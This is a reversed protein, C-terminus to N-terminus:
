SKKPNYLRFNVFCLFDNQLGKPDSCSRTKYVHEWMEPSLIEKM